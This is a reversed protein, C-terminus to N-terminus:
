VVHRKKAQVRQQLREGKEQFMMSIILSIMGIVGFVISSHVIVSTDNGSIAERLAAVAYTFPMFPKLIKFLNPVVEIPFTGACSTLQLILLVIALLRGADGLLFILCQIIAVFTFSMLINFVFYMVINNPRLGLALVVGSVLIAQLFGIFGYSIYKGAVKSKAGAGIEDEVKPSIVFFMMIAGVWLSLPIFYPTFGTGYNKVSNIPQDDMLLPKSVFEGMAESSNKLNDEMKVAGDNLKDSLEKSGDALKVAGDKLQNGGDALEPLKSNLTGLGDAVQSTGNYLRNVGDSLQPISSVLAQAKKLNGETLQEKAMNMLDESNKLEKQVTKLQKALEPSKQILELTQPTNLKEILPKATDLDKKVEMIGPILAKMDKTSGALDQLLQLNDSNNDLDIKITNVAQATKAILVANDDTFIGNATALLDKNNTLLTKVDQLQTNLGALQTKMAGMNTNLTNADTILKTVSSNYTVYLGKVASLIKNQDEITAKATAVAAKETSSLKNDKSLDDLTKLLAQVKTIDVQNKLANTLVEYNKDNEVKTKLDKAEKNVGDAFTILQNVQQMQSDIKSVGAAMNNITAITARIEAFKSKLANESGTLQMAQTPILKEIQAIQAQLAIGDAVLKEANAVRKQVVQANEPKSFDMQSILLQISPKGLINKAGQSNVVNNVDSYTKNGLALTDQNVLDLMSTDMNAIKKGEALAKQAMELNRYNLIKSFDVNSLKSTAGDVKGKLEGMGSNVQVAGNYLKGVGDQLAPINDNLKTVGDLMKQNGDALEKSGDAAKRMGEKIDFLNDFTVETYEKSISSVVKEKLKDEIKSGIQAALFNKKDNSVYQIKAQEPKGDKASLIKTSFDEPIIFMSYYKDGNLGSKAEELSVFRWGVDNNDRLEDVIKQGANEYKGDNNAGNDLNVVAVPLKDMRSYPDWFAALYLLSYLLPVIIIAIVSIRIFRNKFIGAIDKRAIKAFNM